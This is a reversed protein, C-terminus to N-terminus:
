IVLINQIEERFSQLVAHFCALRNALRLSGNSLIDATGSKIRRFNRVAYALPSDGCEITRLGALLFNM